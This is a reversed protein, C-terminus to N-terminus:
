ASRDKTPIVASSSKESEKMEEDEKKRLEKELKDIAEAVNAKPEQKIEENEL